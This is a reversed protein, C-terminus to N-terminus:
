SAVTLVIREDRIVLVVSWLNLKELTRYVEDM